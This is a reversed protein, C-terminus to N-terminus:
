CGPNSLGAVRRVMWLADRIDYKGDCNMDALALYPPETGAAIYMVLYEVDAIDLMGNGDVDGRGAGGTVGWDPHWAFEDILMTQVGAEDIIFIRRDTGGPLQSDYAIKEGDPSYVPNDAQGITRQTMQGGPVTMEYLRKADEGQTAPRVIVAVTDGDPSWAPSYINDPYSPTLDAPNGGTAAVSWLHFPASNGVVGQRSYVITDGDPSWAPNYEVWTSNTLNVPNGGDANMVWINNDGSRGSWFAIKAGDPSWAPDGDMASDNTLNVQQTGDANM